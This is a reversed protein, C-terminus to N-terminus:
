FVYLAYVYAHRHWDLPARTIPIYTSNNNSNHKTIIYIYIHKSYRRLYEKMILFGKQAGSNTVLTLPSVRCLMVLVYWLEPGSFLMQVNVDTAM